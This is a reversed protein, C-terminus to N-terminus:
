RGEPSMIGGKTCGAKRAVDSLRTAEYGRDGFIELAAALIEGPRAEKRRRWRPAPREQIDATM